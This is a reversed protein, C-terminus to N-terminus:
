RQQSKNRWHSEWREIFIEKNHSIISGILRKDQLTFIQSKQCINKM